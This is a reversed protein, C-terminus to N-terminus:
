IKMVYTVLHTEEWHTRNRGAVRYKLMAGGGVIVTSCGQGILDDAGTRARCTQDANPQEYLLIFPASHSATFHPISNGSKPILGGYLGRSNAIQAASPAGPSTM